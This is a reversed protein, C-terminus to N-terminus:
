LVPIKYRKGTLSRFFGGVAFIFCLVWGIFGIVWGVFPIIWILTFVIEAIFLLLGQRANFRVFDDKSRLMIPVLALIGLYSIASLIRAFLGPKKVAEVVSEIKGIINEKDM